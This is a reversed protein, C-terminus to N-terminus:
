AFRQALMRERALATFTLKASSQNLRDDISREAAGTDTDQVVVPRAHNGLTSLCPRAWTTRRSTARPRSSVTCAGVADSRALSPDRHDPGLWCANVRSVM